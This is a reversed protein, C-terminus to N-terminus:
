LRTTPSQAALLAASILCWSMSAAVVAAVWGDCGISGAAAALRHWCNGRTLAAAVAIRCLFISFSTSLISPVAIHLRDFYFSNLSDQQVTDMNVKECISGQRM